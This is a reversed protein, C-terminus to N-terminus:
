GENELAATVVGRPDGDIQQTDRIHGDPDTVATEKHAYIDCTGDGNDFIYAELQTGDDHLWLFHAVSYDPGDPTERVKISNILHYSAGGALLQRAVARPTAQLTRLYEADADPLGKTNVWFTGYRGTDQIRPLLAVKLRHLTRYERWTLTRQYQLVALITLLLAVSLIPNDFVLTTPDVM